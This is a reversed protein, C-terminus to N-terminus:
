VCGFRRTKSRAYLSVSDSGSQGTPHLRLDRTARRCVPEGHASQQSQEGGGGIRGGAGLGDPLRHPACPVASRVFAARPVVRVDDEAEVPKRDDVHLVRVLRQAVSIITVRDDEVALDVVVELQAGLERLEAGREGGLAVGLGDDGGVVV